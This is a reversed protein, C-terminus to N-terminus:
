TTAVIVVIAAVVIAVAAMIWGLRREMFARAREGFFRTLAGVLFFRASRCVLSVLIFLTFDVRCIGAGLTFVKYPIPTFAALAVALAAWDRYLTEVEAFRTELGFWRLIPLAVTDRMYYGIIFGCVAGLLSGLSCILAFRFSRKPEAVGMAILPVDPPVPFFVSEAVAVTFLVPQAYRGRSCKLTWDYLRRLAGRRREDRAQETSEDQM